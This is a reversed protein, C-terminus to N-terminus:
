LLEAALFFNPEAYRVSPLAAIENAADLLDLGNKFSTEVTGKNRPGHRGVSKVNKIKKLITDQDAESTGNIFGILLTAEFNVPNGKMDKFIPCVFEADPINALDDILKKHIEKQTAGPPTKTNTVASKTALKIWGLPRFAAADDARYGLVSARQGFAKADADSPKNGSNGRSALKVAIEAANLELERKAGHYYYYFEPDARLFKTCVGLAFVLLYILRITSRTNM